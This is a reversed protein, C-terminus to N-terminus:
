LNVKGGCEWGSWPLATSRRQAQGPFPRLCWFGQCPQTWTLLVRESLVEDHVCFNEHIWIFIWLWLIAVPSIWSLVWKFVGVNGEKHAWTNIRRHSVWWIRLLALWLWSSTLLDPSSSVQKQLHWYRMHCFCGPCLKEPTCSPFALQLKWLM